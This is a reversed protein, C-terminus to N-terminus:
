YSSFSSTPYMHPALEIFVYFRKKCHDSCLSYTQGKYDLTHENRQEEVQMTCIPDITM